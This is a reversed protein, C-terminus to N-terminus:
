FFLIMDVMVRAVVTDLLPAARLELLVCDDLADELGLPEALFRALSSFAEISAGCVTGTFRPLISLADTAGVLTRRGRVEFLAVCIWSSCTISCANLLATASYIAYSKSVNRYIIDPCGRIEM